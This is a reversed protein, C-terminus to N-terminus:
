NSTEMRKSTGWYWHSIVNEKEGEQGREWGPGKRM